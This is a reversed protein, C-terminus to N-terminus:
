SLSCLILSITKIVTTFNLCFFFSFFYFTFFCTELKLCKLFVSNCINSINESLILVRPDQLIYSLCFVHKNEYFKLFTLIENM